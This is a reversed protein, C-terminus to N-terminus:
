HQLSQPWFDHIQGVDWISEHCAYFSFCTSSHVCIMMQSKNTNGEKGLWLNAVDCCWDIQQFTKRTFYQAASQTALFSFIVYCKEM